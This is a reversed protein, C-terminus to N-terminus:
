GIKSSTLTDKNKTNEGNMCPIQLQLKQEWWQMTVIAIEDLDCHTRPFHYCPKGLLALCSIAPDLMVLELNELPSFNKQFDKQVFLEVKAATLTILWNAAGERMEWRCEVRGWQLILLSSFFHFNTPFHFHRFSLSPTESRQWKGGTRQECVSLFEISKSRVNWVNECKRLNLNSNKSKLKKALSIKEARIKPTM